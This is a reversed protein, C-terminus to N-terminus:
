RNRYAQPNDMVKSEEESILSDIEDDFKSYQGTAVEQDIAYDGIDLVDDIRKNQENITYLTKVYNKKTKKAVAKNSNSEVEASIDNICTMFDMQLSNLSKQTDLLELQMQMSLVRHEQSLCQGLLGRAHQEQQKLGKKRAEVIKATLFQKNNDLRKLQIAFNNLTRDIKEQRAQELEEKTM